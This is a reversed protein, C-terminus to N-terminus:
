RDILVRVNIATCVIGVAIIVLNLAICEVYHEDGFRWLAARWERLRVGEGGGAAEGHYLVWLFSTSFHVVCFDVQGVPRGNVKRLQGGNMCKARIAITFGDRWFGKVNGVTKVVDKAAVRM